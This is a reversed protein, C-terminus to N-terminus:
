QLEPSRGDDTIRFVLFVLTESVYLNWFTTNKLKWFEPSHVFALVGTNYMMTLIMYM